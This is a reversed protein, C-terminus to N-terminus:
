YNMVVATKWKHINGIIHSKRMHCEETGDVEQIAERRVAGWSADCQLSNKEQSTGLCWLLLKEGASHLSDENCIACKPNKPQKIKNNKGRLKMQKNEGLIHWYGHFSASMTFM